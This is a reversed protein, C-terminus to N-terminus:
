VVLQGLGSGHVEFLHHVGPIGLGGGEAFSISALQASMDLSLDVGAVAGFASECEKGSEDGNGGGNPNDKPDGLEGGDSYDGEPGFIEEGRDADSQDRGSPDSNEGGGNGGVVEDLFTAPAYEFIGQDSTNGAGLILGLM